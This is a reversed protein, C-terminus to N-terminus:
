SKLQQISRYPRYPCNEKWETGDLDSIRIWPQNEIAVSHIFKGEEIYMGVHSIRDKSLGWFILDGPEAKEALVEKFREDLVQQKADRQLSIGIKNYLMQVFGSCDYGFSSRGGWTYPKDLFKKSFDVLDKKQKLSPEIAVDGKQIFATTDDPLIVEIWRSDTGEKCALCAGYPLTLIPGFEIDKFRYLHASLRSVKISSRYSDKREAITSIPIWGTYGDTTTVKAFKKEKEEIKLKESFITQSVVKSYQSPSERMNVVPENTYYM